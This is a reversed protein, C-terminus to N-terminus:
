PSSVPLGPVMRVKKGPCYGRCAPATDAFGVLGGEADRQACDGIPDLAENFLSNGVLRQLFAEALRGQKASPARRLCLHRTDKV